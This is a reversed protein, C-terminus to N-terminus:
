GVLRLLEAARDARGAARRRQALAAIEDLQTGISYIPNLSTAPNQFVMAIRRGRM